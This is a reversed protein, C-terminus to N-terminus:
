VFNRDDSEDDFVNENGYIIRETEINEVIITETGGTFPELEPMEDRGCGSLVVMAVLGIITMKKM